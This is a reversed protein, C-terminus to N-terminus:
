HLTHQKRWMDLHLVIYGMQSWRRMAKATWRDVFITDNIWLEFNYPSHKKDHRRRISWDDRYSAGDPVNSCVNRVYDIGSTTMRYTYQRNHRKM